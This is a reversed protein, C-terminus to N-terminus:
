NIHLKVPFSSRNTREIYLPIVKFDMCKQKPRQQLESEAQQRSVPPLFVKEHGKVPQVSVESAITSIDEQELLKQFRQLDVRSSYAPIAPTIDVNHDGRGSAPRDM